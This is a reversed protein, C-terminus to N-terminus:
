VYSVQTRSYQFPKLLFCVLRTSTTPHGVDAANGQKETETELKKEKERLTAKERREQEKMERKEKQEPTEDRWRFDGHLGTGFEERLNFLLLLAASMWEPLMQLVYFAMKEEKSSLSGPATSSISTTRNHMISLRYSCAITLLLSQMCLISIGRKSVRPRRRAWLAACGINVVLLLTLSASVHRLVIVINAIRESTMGMNYLIGSSTGSALAAISLFTAGDTYRRFWFRLRSQDQTVQDVSSSGSILPPPSNESFDKSAYTTNVLLCRLLSVLDQALSILGVCFSIQMYCQVTSHVQEHQARLAFTIVREISFLFSSVILTNCSHKNTLRYVFIPLLLGHLTAFAISPAYDGDVSVGGIPSPFAISAM